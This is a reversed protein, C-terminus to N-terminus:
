FRSVLIVGTTAGTFSQADLPVTTGRVRVRGAQARVYPQMSVRGARVRLGLLALASTVGAGPLGRDVGLGSHWRADIGMVLDTRTRMPAALRAGGELYQGESGTVTRGDRAYPARFRYAGYTVLERLRPTAWEVQVDSSLVPGLRVTALSGADNTTTTSGDRLRDAAFADVSTSLHLRHAGVLRNASFSARVVGGPQFDISPAGAVLAAVPQFQGRYEYSAGVATTWAASQRAYVVGMTGSPGAGVPSSGLGLAPASLVRLAGFQNADLATRGTPANAGITVLLADTLVRGTARVRVDSMGALTASQERGRPDVFTVSGTAILSTVDLRWGGGLSSAASVPLAVQVVRRVRNSDSDTLEGAQLGLGGFRVAEVTVAGGITREGLLRQQGAAPHTASLAFACVFAITRRM